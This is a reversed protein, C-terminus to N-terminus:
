LLLSAGKDNWWRTLLQQATALAEKWEVADLGAAQARVADLGVAKLGVAQGGGGGEKAACSSQGKSPLSLLAGGGLVPLPPVALVLAM